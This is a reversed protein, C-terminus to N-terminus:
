KCYKLKWRDHTSYDRWYWFKLWNRKFDRCLEISTYNNENKYNEFNRLVGSFQRGKEPYEMIKYDTGNASYHYVHILPKLGIFVPIITYNTLIVLLLFISAIIIWIRKKM